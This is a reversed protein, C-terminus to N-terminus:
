SFACAIIEMDGAEQRRGGGGGGGGVLCGDGWVCVCMSLKGPWDHEKEGKWIFEDTVKTGSGLHLHSLPNQAPGPGYILHGILNGNSERQKREVDFDWKAASPTPMLPSGTSSSLDPASHVGVWCELACVCVCVSM